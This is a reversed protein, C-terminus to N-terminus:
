ALHAPLSHPFFERIFKVDREYQMREEPFLTEPDPWKSEPKDGSGMWKGGNWATGCADWNGSEATDALFRMAQAVQTASAGINLGVVLTKVEGQVIRKGVCEAYPAMDESPRRVLQIGIEMQESIEWNPIGHTEWRARCDRVTFGAFKFDHSLAGEAKAPKGLFPISAFLIGVRQIFSKRNM